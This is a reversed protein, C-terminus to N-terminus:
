WRRMARGYYPRSERSRHDFASPKVVVLAGCQPTLVCLDVRLDLRRKSEDTLVRDAARIATETVIAPAATSRNSPHANLATM